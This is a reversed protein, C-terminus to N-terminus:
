QESAQEGENIEQQQREPMVRFLQEGQRVMRYKERALREIYAMDNELSAVEQYLEAARAQLLAIEEEVQRSESQIRYLRLLGHNNFVLFFLIVVVALIWVWRKTRRSGGTHRKIPRARPPGPNM